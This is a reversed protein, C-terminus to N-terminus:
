GKESNKVEAERREKALNKAERKMEAEILARAVLYRTNDWEIVLNLIREETPTV